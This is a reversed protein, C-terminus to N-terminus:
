LAKEIEPSWLQEASGERPVGAFSKIITGDKDLLFSTPLSSQALEPPAKLIPYNIGVKKAFVAAMQLDNDQTFGVIVLGRPGYKKQMAILDPIEGQCPGCWTAWFNVLVVKGRQDRLNFVKGDASATSFDPFPNGNPPPESSDVSKIGQRTESASELKGAVILASFALVLLVLGIGWAPFRKTM